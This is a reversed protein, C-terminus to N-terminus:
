HAKKNGQVLQYFRQYEQDAGEVLVEGINIIYGQNKLNCLAVSLNKNDFGSAVMLEARTGGAYLAELLAAHKNVRPCSMAEQTKAKVPKSEAAIRDLEKQAREIAKAKSMKIISPLNVMAAIEKLSMTNLTKTVQANEM